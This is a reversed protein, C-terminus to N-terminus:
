TTIATTKGMNIKSVAFASILLPILFIFFCDSSSWGSNLLVGALYPGCIAGLRGVGIAWGMGTNRIETHYIDPALAYLGIMSSFILFGTFFAIFLLVSLHATFLGFALMSIACLIMVTQISRKLGFYNSYYGLAIGGIVGGFNMLVSGSIGKEVSLGADVLIKPTWSLVFYFTFMLMFFSLWLYITQKRLNQKLLNHVSPVRRQEEFSPTPLTVMTTKKMRLLITNVHILATKPHCKILYDLSEPLWMLVVPILALSALGGFIFLSRWGLEGILFAAFMGGLTAGIPYGAQLISISLNKRKDSSYEAVLTNLSALASGIALGTMVRLVLLEWYDSAFASLLMGFSMILLALLIINKRGFADAFPSLFLSGLAMGILGASFLGGLETLSVDWEQAISPASFAMVLVDFGDLMNIMVCIAIALIQMRGMPGNKIEESINM